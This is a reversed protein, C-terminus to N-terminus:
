PHHALLTRSRFFALIRQVCVVQLCSANGSWLRSSMRLDYCETAAISQSDTKVGGVSQTNAVYLASTPYFYCIRGDGSVTFRKV